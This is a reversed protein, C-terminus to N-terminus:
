VVSVIFVVIVHVPMYNIVAECKVEEKLDIDESGTELYQM